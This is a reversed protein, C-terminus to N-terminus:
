RNRNPLELKQRDMWLPILLYLAYAFPMWVAFAVLQGSSFQPFVLNHQWLSFSDLLLGIISGTVGLRAAAFASRDLKRYVLFAAFLALGTFTELLLYLLPFRPDQPSVLLTPGLYRFFGTAAAWVLLSCFITMGANTKLM